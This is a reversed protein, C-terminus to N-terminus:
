PKNEKGTLSIVEEESKFEGPRRLGQEGFNDQWELWGKPTLRGRVAYMSGDSEIIFFRKLKNKM